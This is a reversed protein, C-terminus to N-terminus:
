NQIVTEESRHDVIIPDRTDDDIGATHESDVCRTTIKCSSSPCNIKEVACGYGNPCRINACPNAVGDIDIVQRRVRMNTNRDYIRKICKLISNPCPPTNCLVPTELCDWGVPCGPFTCNGERTM